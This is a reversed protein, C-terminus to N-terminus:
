FKASLTVGVTRPQIVALEGALGPAGSSQYNTIGRSDGLNKGYLTVRYRDNELGVRAAVTNYSPLGVQVPITGVSSGFDSSRTGVYSWTAGVFGKYNAFAAWDYEGDLSTSWKPAFPLPDGPIGHVDPAPTTLKADTYAGTWSLTLGHLPVYGFTWELGQSRAKGGNGNVGFGSVINLLQIDRWDIHFAAVDISLLGDLQTSRVGLEVNTTKDSGYQRPVTPPAGPPLANPGGPRFGTAARAYVMTNTDVHWRPAVSYTLVHGKSPTSFATPAGALPGSISETATQENTSWRGGAQVDFQSNFHYTLNGFGAWERYTSALTVLELTGISGGAPVLFGNLHQDLFGTERTFYGGVQWELRESAASSLRLEETFKKLTAANDVLAGLPQGLVATLLDGYTTSPPALVTSTIDQVRDSNLVGYTTTSLISFPGANWTITGNYNEYKLSSPEPAFREQTLDGHVPQLTVPNVDVANTAGYRSQQSTATLRISLDDMPAALLSARGGYKHGDNVDSKGRLHDDIYGAVDEDFGSIRFAFKDGLPLNLVARVDGGKGGDAVAEGTTEVAGSFSGLVPATTVFKLLGGESNAGYLTGQPGRLVEIRQLDWTDFDGSIISGNLLASSSGFPSEDMYVAVTSGVGGANQGRLTLRTIGGQGSVLSLGPVLAAYDSFDRDQLKDLSGGGLATISMPVDKLAEERKEATVIITTLADSDSPQAADLAASPQSLFPGAVGLAALIALRLTANM